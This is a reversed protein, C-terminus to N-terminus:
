PALAPIKRGARTPPNRLAAWRRCMSTTAHYTGDKEWEFRSRHRDSRAMRKRLLPSRKSPKPRSMSAVFTLLTETRLLLSSRSDLRILLIAPLAKGSAAM